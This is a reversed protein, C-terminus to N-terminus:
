GSRRHSPRSPACGQSEPGCRRRQERLVGADGNCAATMCRGHPLLAESLGAEESGLASRQGEAKLTLSRCMLPRIGACWRTGGSPFHPLGSGRCATRYSEALGQESPGGIGVAALGGTAAAMGGGAAGGGGGAVAAAGHPLLSGGATRSRGAPATSPWIPRRYSRGPRSRGAIYGGGDHQAAPQPDAAAAVLHRLGSLAMGVTRHRSQGPVVSAACGAGAAAYCYRHGCQSSCIIRGDM